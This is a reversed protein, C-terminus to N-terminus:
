TYSGFVLVVPRGRYSALSVRRAPDQATRLDFDPATEGASLTGARAWLWMRQAPLGGWVVAPPMRKMFAGFRSPPQKMAILVTAFLVAYLSGLVLVGRFLWRLSTRM